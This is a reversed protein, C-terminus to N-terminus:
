QALRQKILLENEKLWALTDRVAQLHEMQLDAISQRMARSSVLRPYVQRRQALERDVEAIQSSLSVKM